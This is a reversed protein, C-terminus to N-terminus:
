KGKNGGKGNGGKAKNGKTKAGKSMKSTAKGKGSNGMIIAKWADFAGM